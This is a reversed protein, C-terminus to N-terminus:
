TMKWKPPIHLHHAGCHSVYLMWGSEQSTTTRYLSNGKSKLYFIFSIVTKVMSHWQFFAGDLKM